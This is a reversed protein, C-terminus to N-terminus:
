FKIKMVRKTAGTVRVVIDDRKTMSFGVGSLQDDSYEVKMRGGLAEFVRKHEMLENKLFENYFGNPDEPNRCDKLMFFCHRHGIGEQEDWYNPSYMMVSVPVFDNTKLNWIERSSQTTPLHPKITFNHGDFNVIAVKVVKNPALEKDYEFSYMQGDLEIEAKFGSRGGRHEFNHVAFLYDGTTMSNKSPWTINEVATRGKEPHRIDVDLNGRSLHGYKRAFFIHGRNEDRWMGHHSNIPEWCHADFDNPNHDEGDNWQISFRLVGDVKGGAAKVNEKLSDTVNGAYAWGFNNNWKLMSPAEPNQPAVLSVMNKAHRNELYVEIDKATPLVNKIFNDIGIEEVRDFNMPKMSVDAMMDTFVDGGNVQNRVERNCFLINNVSIDNLRAHRRPLSNIYGLEVVKKQADELMKKTFIAKPRKYNSPAVIQEYRRVAQELDMGESIDVLLTGISHNRIKGVTIGADGFKEWAYIEKTGPSPREDYEAKYTLFKELPKKWETGRYLTNSNILELVTNVADVSIENLSRKFVNRIDRQEGKYMGESKGGSYVFRYPLFLYFHDWRIIEGDREEMNFNTGIKAHNTYYVDTIEKSHIYASLADLVPQFTDDDTRFDWVSTVVGDRITVVNGFNRIFQRCCSCDYERRVRFIQNKDAPFNNLYLDWLIDKDVNVEYLRDADHSMREFHAQFMNKFEAFTM